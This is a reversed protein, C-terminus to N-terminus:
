DFSDHSRQAPPLLRGMVTVFFAVSWGLLIAGNGGEIAGLLKWDPTISADGYGISGYSITSFCVAERLDSVAGLLHFLLAYLWIELGHLFFLGLVLSITLWAGRRSLPNLRVAGGARADSAAVMRGLTLLGVAHVGVTVLVMLTAVLLELIMDM